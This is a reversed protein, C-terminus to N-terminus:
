AASNIVGRGILEAMAQEPSEWVFADMGVYQAGRVHKARDDILLIREAPIKLEQVACQYISSHPKRVGFDASFIFHDFRERAWPATRIAQGVAQPANALVGVKVGSARVRDVVALANEDAIHMRQTDSEILQRLKDGTPIDIGLDLAVNAWFEQDTLGLDHQDRHAWIAKDVCDVEFPHNSDLGLISMFSCPRLRETVLLGGVDFFVAQIATEVM